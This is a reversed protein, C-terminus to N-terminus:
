KETGLDGKSGEKCGHFASAVSSNEMPEAGM